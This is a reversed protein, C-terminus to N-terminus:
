EYGDGINIGYCTHGTAHGTSRNDEITDLRWHSDIDAFPIEQEDCALGDDSIFLLLDDHIVGVVYMLRDRYMVIDGIEFGQEESMETGDRPRKHQKSPMGDSM